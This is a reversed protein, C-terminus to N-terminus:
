PLAWEFQAASKRAEETTMDAPLMFFDRMKEPTSGRLMDAVFTCADDLLKRADLYNAAEMVEFLEARGLGEFFRVKFSAVTSPPVNLNVLEQTKSYFTVIHTLTRAGVNPLPVIASAPDQGPVHTDMALSLAGCSTAVVEPVTFVFADRTRVLMANM